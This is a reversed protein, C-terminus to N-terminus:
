SRPAKGNETLLRRAVVAVEQVAGPGPPPVALGRVLANRVKVSPRLRILEDGSLLKWDYLAGIL